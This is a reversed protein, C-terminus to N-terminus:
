RPDHGETNGSKCGELSELVENASKYHKLWCGTIVHGCDLDAVAPFQQQSFLKDVWTTYNLMGEVDTFPGRSQRYPWFGTLITYFLSGLSFLDLAPSRETGQTPDYFPGDPLHNGDLGLRDCKAAGFDCLLLNLNGPSSEHM